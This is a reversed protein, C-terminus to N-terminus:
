LAIEQAASVIAQLGSACMRNITMAPKDVPVGANIGVQRGPNMGQGAMLINGVIVQDVQDPDIGSRNLVETAVTTGLDVAPVDKLSGGFTGIATRLPTSIVIETGNSNSFSM